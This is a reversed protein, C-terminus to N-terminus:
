GRRDDIRGLKRSAGFHSEEVFSFELGLYGGDELFDLDSHYRLLSAKVDSVRGEFSKPLVVTLVDWGQWTLVLQMFGPRGAGQHVAELFSNYELKSGLVSFSDGVRGMVEIRPFGLGCPCDGSRVSAVDRLAYRLLPLTRQGLTTVVVQGGSGPAGDEDLEVINRDTFLHIGDHAPCEIGLASTEAAGYYAFVEVGFAAELAPRTPPAMPEGVYVMKALRSASAGAYHRSLAEFSRELISPVSVIVSPDLRPLAELSSDFDPGVCYCYAEEVGLLDFAKTFSAMLAVPDTDVCAVRDSASIGCLSFLEALFEHDALDDAFSIFRRKRPGTTGSSTELDVIQDGVALSEDMLEQFVQGELLPLRRLVALPDNDLIHERTLGLGDFVRRYVSFTSYSHLLAQRLEESARESVEGLVQIDATLTIM